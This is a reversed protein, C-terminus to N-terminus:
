VVVYRQKITTSNKVGKQLCFFPAQQAAKVDKVVKKRFADSDQPDVCVVIVNAKKIDEWQGISIKEQSVANVMMDIVVFIKYSSDSDKTQLRRKPCIFITNAEM